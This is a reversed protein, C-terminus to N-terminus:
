AASHKNIAMAFSTPVLVMTLFIFDEGPLSVTPALNDVIIVLLIPVLGIITGWFMMGLGTSERTASDAGKYRKIMKLIAWGFYFLIFLLFLMDMTTNLMSSSTPDFVELVLIILSLLVPPGFLIMNANKKDLFPDKDPYNLLFAVLFAFALLVFTFRVTGVFDGLADAEIYPGGLFSSGFGLAFFAFMLSAWTKNKSYAWLAMLVFILGVTWGLRNGLLDKAPQSAYTLTYSVEEGNRDSVFTRTDGVKARSFSDWTKPDRVDMGNVTKMQDGVMMGAEAAPSDAEVKTVQYDNSEYGLYTYNKFDLYGMFGLIIFLVALVYVLQTHIPKITSM